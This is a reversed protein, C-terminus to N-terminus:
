HHTCMQLTLLGVEHCLSITNNSGQNRVHTAINFRRAAPATFGRQSRGVASRNVSNCLLVPECRIEMVCKCRELLIGSWSRPWLKTSTLAVRSPIRVACCAKGHARSRVVCCAVQSTNTLWPIKTNYERHCAARLPLFCSKMGKNAIKKKAVRACESAHALTFVSLVTWSWRIWCIQWNKFSFFPMQKSLCPIFIPPSLKQCGTKVRVHHSDCLASIKNRHQEWM